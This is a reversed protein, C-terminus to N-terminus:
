GSAEIRSEIREKFSRIEEMDAQLNEKFRNLRKLAEKLKETENRSMRSERM